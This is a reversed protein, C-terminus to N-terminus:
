NSIIGSTITKWSQISDNFIEEIGHKYQFGLDMLKKSSVQVLCEGDQDQVNERSNEKLDPHRSLLCRLNSISCSHACCIYREGAIQQQHDMLFMHANCIDEIHALALCGLRLEVAKALEYYETVPSMLVRVSSPVTSTLFKGAVTVPIITVMDINHERAFKLAEKEALTKAVIYMWGNPKQAKVHDVSVWFTEDVTQIRKGDEGIASVTSISSTYVVRRVSKAKVCAKLVNLTGRIAPEFIEEEPNQSHFLLPMALHFVGECGSIAADFSGDESLDAMFLRLREKAGPLSLLHGAKAANEPDRLTAHVTHGSQLLCKVLWSGIYGAAGTVCLTKGM